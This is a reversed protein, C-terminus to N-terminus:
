GARKHTDLLAVTTIFLVIAAGFGPAMQWLAAPAQLLPAIVMTAVAILVLLWGTVYYMRLHFLRALPFFHIGVGACVVAPLWLSHGTAGLVAAAIGLGVFEAVVVLGFRGNMGPQRPEVTLAGGARFMRVGGIVAAVCLLVTVILVPTAVMRAANSLGWGVWALTFYSLVFVAAARGRMEARGMHARTQSRESTTTM